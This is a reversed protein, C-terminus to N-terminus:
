GVEMWYLTATIHECLYILREGVMTLVPSCVLPVCFIELALLATCAIALFIFRYPYDDVSVYHCPYFCFSMNRDTANNPILYFAAM